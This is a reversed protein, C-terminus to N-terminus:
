LSDVSFLGFNFILAILLESPLLDSFYLKGTEQLIKSEQNTNEKSVMGKYLSHLGITSLNYLIKDVINYNRWKRLLGLKFHEELCVIM